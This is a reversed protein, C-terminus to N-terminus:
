SAPPWSSRFARGDGAGAGPRHGARLGGPVAGGHGAAGALTQTWVGTFRRVEREILTALGIRNWSGFRRVGPAIGPEIGAPPTYTGNM